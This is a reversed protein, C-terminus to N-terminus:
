SLSVFVASFVYFLSDMEEIHACSCAGLPMYFVIHMLGLPVMVYIAMDFDDASPLHTIM